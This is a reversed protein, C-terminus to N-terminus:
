LADDIRAKLLPLLREGLPDALNLPVGSFQEALRTLTTQARTLLVGAFLFCPVVVVAQAGADILRTTEDALTPPCVAAYAIGTRHNDTVTALQQALREIQDAGDPASSGRGLVLLGTDPHSLPTQQAAEIAQQHLAALLGAGTGIPPTIQIELAPYESGAEALAHPIDRLVHGAALLIVPVALLRTAGQTVAQAVADAIEVPHHSLCCPLVTQEPCTLAVQQALAM